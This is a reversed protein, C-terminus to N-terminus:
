NSAPGFLYDTPSFVHLEYSDGLDGTDNMTDVFVSLGDDDAESSLNMIDVGLDTLEKIEITDTVTAEGTDGFAIWQVFLRATIKEGGSRAVVLRYAGSRDGDQWSGGISVDEISGPIAAVQQALDDAVASGGLGLGVSFGTILAYKRYM